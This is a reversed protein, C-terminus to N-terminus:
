KIGVQRMIDRYLKSLSENECIPEHFIDNRINGPAIGHGSLIKEIENITAESYKEKLYALKVAKDKFLSYRQRLHLLSIIQNRPNATEIEINFNDLFAARDSKSYDFINVANKLSLSFQLNGSRDYDHYTPCCQYLEKIANNFLINKKFKSNCAYCSPVFNYLSRAFLCCRSQPIFHDLTFTNKNDGRHKKLANYVRLAPFPLTEKTLTSRNALGVVRSVTVPGVGPVSLLEAESAHRIFDLRDKYGDSAAFVHVSDINCYYCSKLNFVHNQEEFFSSIKSQDYSFVNKFLENIRKRDTAKLAEFDCFISVLKEIRGLIIDKYKIRKFFIKQARSGLRTNKINDFQTKQTEFLKLYKLELEERENKKDPYNIKIM